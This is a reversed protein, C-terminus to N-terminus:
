DTSGPEPAKNELSTQAAIRAKRKAEARRLGMARRENQEAIKDQRWKDYEDKLSPDVQMGGGEVLNTASSATKATFKPDKNRWKNVARPPAAPAVSVNDRKLLKTLKVLKALQDEDNKKSKKKM